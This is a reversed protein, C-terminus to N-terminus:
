ALRRRMVYLGGFLLASLVAPLMVVGLFLWFTGGPPIVWPRFAPKLRDAGYRLKEHLLWSVSNLFLFRNGGAAFNTNNIFDSDGFVLMRNGSAGKNALALGLALPGKEDRGAEFAFNGQELSSYDTEGWSEPGSFLLYDRDWGGRERLDTMRVSRALPFFLPAEFNKVIEHRTFDTAVPILDDAGFFRSGRDVIVNDGLGAGRSELFASLNSFSEKEEPDILFFVSRSKLFDIIRELEGRALDKKPAAVVLLDAQQFSPSDILDQKVGYAENVLRDAAFAFGAPGADNLDAEGHGKLFFILPPREALREFAERIGQEGLRTVAVRRGGAELLLIGHEHVGYRRAEAPNKELEYNKFTLLPFYKKLGPLSSEVETIVPDESDFFGILRVPADRFPKVLERTRRDFSFQGEPSLDFVRHFPAAILLALILAALFVSSYLINQIWYHLRPFPLKMKV